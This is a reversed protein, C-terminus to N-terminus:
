GMGEQGDSQKIKNQKQQQQKTRHSEEQETTKKTNSFFIRITTFYEFMLYAM